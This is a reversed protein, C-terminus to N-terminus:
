DKKVTNPVPQFTAKSRDLMPVPKSSYLALLNPDSFLVAPKLVVPLASLYM